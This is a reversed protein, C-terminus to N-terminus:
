SKIIRMSKRVGTKTNLLKKYKKFKKKPVRIVAKKHIDSWAKSGIKQLKPSIIKITKLKKCGYFAKGDIRTVNKPIVVKTLKTNKYFAKSSIGSVTYRIGNKPISNPITFSKKSKGNYKVLSIEHKTKIQKTIKWKCKCKSKKDNFVDGKKPTPKATPKAVSSGKKKVSITTQVPVIAASPMRSYNDISVAGAGNTLISENDAPVIYGSVKTTGAGLATIDGNKKLDVVNNETRNWVVKLGNVYDKTNQAFQGNVTVELKASDGIELQKTEEVKANTNTLACKASVNTLSKMLSMQNADATLEKTAYVSVFDKTDADMYFNMSATLSGDPNERSPFQNFDVEADCQVNTSEFSSLAPLDVHGLAVKTGDEKKYGFTAKCPKSNILSQNTVTASLKIKNRQVIYASLESSSLVAKTTGKLKKQDLITDGKRLILTGEYGYTDDLPVIVHISQTEGGRLSITGLSAKKTGKEAISISGDDNKAEEM